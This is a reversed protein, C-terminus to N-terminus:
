SYLITQATENIPYPTPMQAIYRQLCTVDFIDLTDGALAARLTIM